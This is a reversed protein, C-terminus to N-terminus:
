TPCTRPSPNAAIWLGPAAAQGSTLFKVLSWDIARAQNGSPRSLEDFWTLVPQHLQSGSSTWAHSKGVTLMDGQRIPCAHVGLAQQLLKLLSSKGRNGMQGDITDVHVVVVKSTDCPALCRAMYRLVWALETTDPLWSQLLQLLEPVDAEAAQLQPHTYNLVPAMVIHDTLYPLGHFSHDSTCFWGDIVAIRRHHAHAHAAQLHQQDPLCLKLARLLALQQTLSSDLAAIQEPTLLSRQTSLLHHVLFGAVETAGAVVWKGLMNPILHLSKGNRQYAVAVPLHKLPEIHLKLAHVLQNGLQYSNSTM